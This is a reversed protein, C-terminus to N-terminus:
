ATKEDADVDGVAWQLRALYRDIVRQIPGADRVHWLSSNQLFHRERATIRPPSQPQSLPLDQSVSVSREPLGDALDSLSNNLAARLPRLIHGGRVNPLLRDPKIWDSSPCHRVPCIRRNPLNSARVGLPIM